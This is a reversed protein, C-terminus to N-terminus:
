IELEKIKEELKLEKLEIHGFEIFYLKIFSSNVEYKNILFEMDVLEQLSSKIAELNKVKSRSSPLMVTLKIIKYPIIAEMEGRLLSAIRQSQVYNVFIATFDNKIKEIKHKYLKITNNTKLDREISRSMLIRCHRVGNEDTFFEIEFMRVIAYNHEPLTLKGDVDSNSLLEDNFVMFGQNAMKTLRSATLDLYTKSKNKYILYSLQHLPYVLDQEQYYMVKKYDEILFDMIKQDKADISKSKLYAREGKKVVLVESSTDNQFFLPQVTGSERKYQEDSVYAKEDNIELTNETNFLTMKEKASYMGDLSIPRETIQTSVEKYEKINNIISLKLENDIISKLTIPKSKPALSFTILRNSIDGKKGLRGRTNLYGKLIKKRLEDIDSNFFNTNEFCIQEIYDSLYVASHQYYYKEYFQKFEEDKYINDLIYKLLHKDM